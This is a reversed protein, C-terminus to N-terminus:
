EDTHAQTDAASKEKGSSECSITLSMYLMNYRFMLKHPFVISFTNEEDEQCNKEAECFPCEKRKGSEASRKGDAVCAFSLALIIPDSTLTFIM